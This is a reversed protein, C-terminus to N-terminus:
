WFKYVIYWKQQKHAPTVHVLSFKNMKNNFRPHYLKDDTVAHILSAPWAAPRARAAGGQLGHQHQQPVAGLRCQQATHFGHLQLPCTCSEGDQLTIYVPHGSAATWYPTAPTYCFRWQDPGSRNELLPVSPGPRGCPEAVRHHCCTCASGSTSPMPGTWRMLCWALPTTIHPTTPACCPQCSMWSVSCGTPQWTVMFWPRCPGKSANWLLANSTM